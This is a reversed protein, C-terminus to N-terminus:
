PHIYYLIAVGAAGILLGFLVAFIAVEIPRDRM